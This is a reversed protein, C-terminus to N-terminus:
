FLNESEEPTLYKMQDMPRIKLIHLLTGHYIEDSGNAM